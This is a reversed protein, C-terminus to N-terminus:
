QIVLYTGNWYMSIMSSGTSNLITYNQSSSITSTINTANLTNTDIDNAWLKTIRNTISGLWGFFGYSTTTINYATNINSTKNYFLLNARSENWSNNIQNTLALQGSSSPLDILLINSSPNNITVSGTGEAGDFIISNFINIDEFDLWDGSNTCHGLWCGSNVSYNTNVNSYNGAYIGIPINVSLSLITPILLIGLILFIIQKM